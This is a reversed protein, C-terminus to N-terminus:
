LEGVIMMRRKQDTITLKRPAVSQSTMGGKPEGIEGQKTAVTKGAAKEKSLRPVM